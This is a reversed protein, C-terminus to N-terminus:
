FNFRFCKSNNGKATRLSNATSKYTTPRGNVFEILHSSVDTPIPFHKATMRKFPMNSKSNTLQTRSLDRNDIMQQLNDLQRQYEENITSWENDTDMFFPASRNIHNGNLYNHLQSEKIKGFLYRKTNNIENTLQKNKRIEILNSM